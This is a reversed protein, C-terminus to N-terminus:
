RQVINYSEASLSRELKQKVEKEEEKNGQSYTERIVNRSTARTEKFKAGSVEFLNKDHKYVNGYKKTSNEFIESYKIEKDQLECVVRDTQKDTQLNETFCCLWSVM